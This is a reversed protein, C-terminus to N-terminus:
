RFVDELRKDVKQMSLVKLNNKVAFNFISPRIDNKSNYQIVWTYDNIRKLMDNGTLEQLSEIEIGRDFEVIVSQFLQGSVTKLKSPVDDAIIEGKNIIIVRDCIAEVEQMIHTSLLVTKEKGISSILNRIEVIQNPDLGTTPEDLILVDPNHLLAQAIGVRQRYGKSLQRITKGIEPKLGTLEIIERIRKQLQKRPKYIGTIYELYETIYMEPYLPNNEQLFGLSKRVQLSNNVVSTGNVMVDGSDPLLLGCIIKMLTTKGAGNPGIFGAVEGTNVEFSVDNLALQTGYRKVIKDIKISM